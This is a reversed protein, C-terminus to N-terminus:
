SGFKGVVLILDSAELSYGLVVPNVTLTSFTLGDTFTYATSEIYVGNIFVSFNSSSNAPLPSPAIAWGKSFTATTTNVYTGILSTNNILYNGYAQDLVESNINQNVTINFGDQAITAGLPKFNNSRKKVTEVSGTSESTELGFVVQSVGYVKNVSALSKNISEPIIYGNLTIAFTNRVARDDGIEYTISEDFTDISSYFQFKSPDGWYTRSAFNISEILEDM